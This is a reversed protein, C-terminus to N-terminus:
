AKGEKQIERERTKSSKCYNYMKVCIFMKRERKRERIKRAKERKGNEHM